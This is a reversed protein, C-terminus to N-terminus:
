RHGKGSGKAGSEKINKKVDDPIDNSLSPEIPIDGQAGQQQLGQIAKGHEEVTVGMAQEVAGKTEQSVDGYISGLTELHGTTARANMEDIARTDQGRMGASSSIEEGFRRLKQYEQLAYEASKGNGKAAEAEARDLRGQIAELNIEAARVPNVKALNQLANIHGKIVIGKSDIVAERTGESAGDKIEDLRDLHNLIALVVAELSTEGDRVKEAKTIALNLNREYGAVAIAIRESHTTYTKRQKSLTINSISMTLIRDYSDTIMTTQDTTMSALEELEDLRTSTFKLELEVETADDFTVIRQIQETGLKVSYLTDGPLSSQSAYATGTGAVSICLLVAVAISVGRAWSTYWGHRVGPQFLSRGARKRTQSAYIQEMLNVRARVKFPDSPRTDVPEEISLAVRLLPKLERRMDSHRDLCDQLSAKGSKIDDICQILIEEVKKM